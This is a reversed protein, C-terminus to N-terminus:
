FDAADNLRAVLNVVPIGAGSYLERDVYEDRSETM